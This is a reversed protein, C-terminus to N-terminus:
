SHTLLCTGHVQCSKVQLVAALVAIMIPAQARCAFPRLHRAICNPKLLQAFSVRTYGEMHELGEGTGDELMKATKYAVSNARDEAAAAEEAAVAAAAEAAAQAAAEEEFQHASTEYNPLARKIQENLQEAM